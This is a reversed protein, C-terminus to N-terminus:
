DKVILNPGVLGANLKGLIRIKNTKALDVLYLQNEKTAVLVVMKQDYLHAM